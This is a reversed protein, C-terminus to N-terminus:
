SPKGRSGGGRINGATLCQEDPREEPLEGGSNGGNGALLRKARQLGWFKASHGLGAAWLPTTQDMDKEKKEGKEGATNALGMELRGVPLVDKTKRSNAPRPGQNKPKKPYNEVKSQRVPMGQAPWARRKLGANGRITGYSPPKERRVTVAAAGGGAVASEGKVPTNEFFPVASGGKQPGNGKRCTRGNKGKKGLMVLFRDRQRNLPEIDGLFFWVV